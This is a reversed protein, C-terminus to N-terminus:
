GPHGSNSLSSSTQLKMTGGLTTSAPGQADPESSDPSSSAEEIQASRPLVCPNSAYEHAEDFIRRLSADVLRVDADFRRFRPVISTVIWRWRDDFRTMRPWAQARLVHPVGRGFSYLYFSSFYSLEQRVGRVRLEPGLRRVVAQRVRMLPSRLPTTGLRATRARPAPRQGGLHPRRGDTSGERVGHRGGSCPARPRDGRLRLPPRCYRDDTGLLARLREIGNEASGYALHVWFIDDWARPGGGGGAGAQGAHSRRPCCRPPPGPGASVPGHQRRLRPGPDGPHPACRGGRFLTQCSNATM